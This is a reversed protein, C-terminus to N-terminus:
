SCSVKPNGYIACLWEAYAARPTEGVGVIMGGECLWWGPGARKLRPKPEPYHVINDLIGQFARLYSIAM